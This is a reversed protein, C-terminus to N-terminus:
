SHKAAFLQCWGTPSISGAVVKCQGAATASAGPIFYNCKSCQAAGNPQPRYKVSAQPTTGAAEAHKPLLMAGIVPLGAAAMLIARRTSIVRESSM